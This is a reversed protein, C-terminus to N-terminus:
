YIHKVENHNVGNALCAQKHTAYLVADHITPFQSSEEAVEFYSGVILSQKVDNSLNVLLMDVGIESFSKCLSYLTKIGVLDIFSFSACDIILTHLLKEGASTKVPRKSKQGNSTMSSGSSELDLDIGPIKLQNGGNINDGNVGNLQVASSDTEKKRKLILMDPDFGVAAYLKEKFYDRNAYYLSHFKFIVIGNQPQASAYGKRSRYVDTGAVNGLVEWRPRQTRLIVTLMSFGVGALLGIDVGLILVSLLTVVWVLCDVKSTKFTPKLLSFQQIIGFLGVIIICGLVARPLPQFVPGLVLITILVIIVSLCGVVQTNGGSSEQIVCRALAAATPFSRFFSPVFNGAGYAILEQNSDIKYGYKQAYMKAISISIAFGVIALAFGDGVISGLISFDPLIPAPLGRPIPGVVSVGFNQQFHGFTSSIIAVVVVIVESPIPIKMKSKFRINIERGAVLVTACVISIILTPVHTVPLSKFIEIWDRFFVPIATSSKITIGLVSPVQSTVVQLAAGTTFAQILPDSLYNTIFGLRFIGFVLQFIGMLFMLATATGVKRLEIESIGGIFTANMGDVTMGTTENLVPISEPVFRVVVRKTLLSTVAFTGVSIHRSTGMITYLLVTYFSTYLGYVPPLGALLSFAMSQPIHVIGVTLGAVLDGPLWKKIKYKRMWTFIPFLGLLVDVFCHTNCRKACKRAREQPTPSPPRLEAGSIEKEFEPVSRVARDIVYRCTLESNGQR